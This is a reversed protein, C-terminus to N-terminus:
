SFDYNVLTFLKIVNASPAFPMFFLSDQSYSELLPKKWCSDNAGSVPAMAAPLQQTTLGDSSAGFVASAM